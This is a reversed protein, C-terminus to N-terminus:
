WKGRAGLREAIAARHRETAGRRGQGNQSQQEGGMEARIEGRVGRSRRASIGPSAAQFVGMAYAGAIDDRGASM